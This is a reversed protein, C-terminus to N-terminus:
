RLTHEIFIKFGLCILIVGGILEAKNGLKDGFRKGILFGIASLFATIITIITVLEIINVNLAAMSIGLALADTSTAFGQIILMSWSMNINDSKNKDDKGCVVEAIMKIGIFSMLILAIYHDFKQLIDQFKMGLGYGIIPMLGQFLGFIIGCLLAGTLRRQKVSLGNTVSVAFSDSALGLSIFILGLISM